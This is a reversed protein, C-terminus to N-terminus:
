ANAARLFRVECGKEQGTIHSMVGQKLFLFVTGPYALHLQVMSQRPMWPNDFRTLTSYQSSKATSTHTRGHQGVPRILTIRSSSSRFIFIFTIVTVTYM